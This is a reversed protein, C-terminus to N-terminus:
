DARWSAALASEISARATITARNSPHASFRVAVFVTKASPLGAPDTMIM